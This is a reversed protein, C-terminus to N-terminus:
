LFALAATNSFLDLNRSIPAQAVTSQLLSDAIRVPRHSPWHTNGKDICNYVFAPESHERTICWPELVTLACSAGGHKGSAIDREEGDGGAWHGITTDRIEQDACDRVCAESQCGRRIWNRRKRAPRGSQHSQGQRRRGAEFQTRSHQGRREAQRQDSCSRSSLPSPLVHSTNPARLHLLSRTPRNRTSPHTHGTRLETHACQIGLACM